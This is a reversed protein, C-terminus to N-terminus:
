KGMVSVEHFVMVLRHNTDGNILVGNVALILDSNENDLGGNSVPNSPNTLYRKPPNYAESYAFSSHCSQYTEVIDKTLKVM